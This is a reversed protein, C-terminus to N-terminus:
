FKYIIFTTLLILIITIVSQIFPTNIKEVKKTLLYILVNALLIILYIAYRHINAKEVIYLYLIYIATIILGFITVSKQFKKNEKSIGANIAVASFILVLFAFSILKTLELNLLDIRMSKFLLLFFIGSLIELLFYRIRIKQSCYRCKGKLFIYSFIPFLDLIGLKHNCNPCFSHEHVIDKHLPIRYVALTYFSGFFSGIIFIIACIYIEM